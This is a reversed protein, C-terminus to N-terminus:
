GVEITLDHLHEMGFCMLTCYIKYNQAGKDGAIFDLTAQRNKLSLEKTEAVIEKGNHLAFAHVFGHQEEAARMLDRLVESTKEDFIFTVRVSEGKKVHFPADILRGNTDSFGDKNVKIKFEIDPNGAGADLACVVSIFVAICLVLARKM